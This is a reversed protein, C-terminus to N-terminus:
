GLEKLVGTVEGSGPAYGVSHSGSLFALLEQRDGDLMDQKDALRRLVQAARTQLFGGAMGKELATVAKNIAAINADYESKKGAFAAAEKERIGTAEKMAGKAASRDVQAQKLDAKTQTLKEESEQISSSVAPIKTEASGISASLDGGGTKCFCMFKDYLEKEKVGEATVKKQMAQLLNVVKRIPNARAATSQRSGQVAIPTSVLLVHLLFRTGM